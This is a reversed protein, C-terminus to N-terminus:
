PSGALPAQDVEGSRQDPRCLTPAPCLVGTVGDLAGDALALVLFRAEDLPGPIALGVSAAPTFGFRGFLWGDGVTAVIRHGLGRARDLGDAVLRSAIGRRRYGADVALPGLLLAPVAGGNASGVASAIAIPWFRLTGVLRDGDHATFGLAAVPATGHRLRYSVRLARDPGFALDLLQEIAPGDGPRQTAIDVM